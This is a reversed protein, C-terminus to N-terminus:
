FSLPENACFTLSFALAITLPYFKLLHFKSIRDLNSPM